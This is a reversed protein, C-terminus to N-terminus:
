IYHLGGQCHWWQFVQVQSLALGSCSSAQHTQVMTGTRSIRAPPPHSKGALVPTRRSHDKPTSRPGSEPLVRPHQGSDDTLPRPTLLRPWHPSTLWLHHCTPM